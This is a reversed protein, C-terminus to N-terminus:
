NNISKPFGIANLFEIGILIKSKLRLGNKELGFIEVADDYTM